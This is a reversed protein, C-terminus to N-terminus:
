KSELTLKMQTETAITMAQSSRPNVTQMETTSTLSFNSVPPLLRDFRVLTQGQGTSSLSKLTVNAGKPMGPINLQQAKAQQEVGIRLTATGEKLSVIEYTAIQNFRIGNMTIPMAVRWKAGVGVAADPVPASFQDLSQSMQDLMQRTRNDVDKPIVFSGSKTQGRDSVVFSGNLGALPKIQTRIQNVVAPPLTADATVDVDTYRFSYHIDGNPDVKTVIAEMKIVTTPLKSPAITTEGASMKMGMDVTMTATEKQDVVPKFRLPKLPQAGPSILEVQLPATTPKLVQAQQLTPKAITPLILPKAGVGTAVFLISVFFAKKM